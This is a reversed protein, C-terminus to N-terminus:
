KTLADQVALILRGSGQTSGSILLGSQVFADNYDKSYPEGAVSSDVVLNGNADVSYGSNYFVKIDLVESVSLGVYQQLLWAEHDTWNQESSDTWGYGGKTQEIPVVPKKDTDWKEYTVADGEGIVKYYLSDAELSSDGTESGKYLLRAYNKSFYKSWGDSVLTWAVGSEKYSSKGTTWDKVIGGQKSLDTNTIDRVNTIINNEVTVEVRMGYTAGYKNTYSYSGEYKGNYGASCGTAIGIGACLATSAAAVAAVKFIKKM